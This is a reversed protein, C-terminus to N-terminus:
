VYRLIYPVRATIQTESLRQTSSTKLVAATNAELYENTLILTDTRVSSALLSSWCNGRYLLRQSMLSPQYVCAAQRTHITYMYQVCVGPPALQPDPRLQLVAHCRNGIVVLQLTPM